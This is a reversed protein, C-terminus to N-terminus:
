YGTYMEVRIDAGPIGARELEQCLGAILLTSGVVYYRPGLLAPLWREFLSTGLRMTEGKWGRRSECARTMTPVLQLGRLRHALEYMEELYAADEPRRNSYFLTASLPESRGDAERLLSRFPAIGVGGAVLVLPRGGDRDLSLDDGPGDILLPAGLPMEALSRKFATDRVRALVVLDPDGPASALSLSRTPGQADDFRPRDLTVDIYQGARFTFHAPRELRCAITGAAVLERGLLRSRQAM